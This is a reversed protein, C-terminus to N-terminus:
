CLQIDAFIRIPFAPYDNQVDIAIEFALIIGM